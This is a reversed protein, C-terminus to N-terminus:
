SATGECSGRGGVTTARLTIQYGNGFPLKGILASITSSNSVDIAASRNFGSPGLLTYSVSSVTLGSGVQVELGIQGLDGAQVADPTESTCGAVWGGALLGSLLISRLITQRQM